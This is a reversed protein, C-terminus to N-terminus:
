CMDALCCLMLRPSSILMTATTDKFRDYSAAKYITVAEVFCKSCLYVSEQFLQYHVCKHFM